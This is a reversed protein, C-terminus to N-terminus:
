GFRGALFRGIRAVADTAEPVRGAFIQWVPIMEECVELDVSVAAARCREAFTRSDDVIIEAEGVQILLPPLGAALEEVAVGDLVVATRRVDAAVPLAM